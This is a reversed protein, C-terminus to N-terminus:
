FNSLRILVKEHFSQTSPIHAFPDLDSYTSELNLPSSVSCIRATASM